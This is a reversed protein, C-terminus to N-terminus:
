RKFFELQRHHTPSTQPAEGILPLRHHELGLQGTAGPDTPPPLRVAGEGQHAVELPEPAGM